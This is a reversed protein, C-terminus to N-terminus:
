SKIEQYGSELLLEVFNQKDIPVSFLICKLKKNEWAENKYEIQWINEKKHNIEFSKSAFVIPEKKKHKLCYGDYRGQECCQKRIPVKYYKGDISSDDTYGIIEFHNCQGIEKYCKDCIIDAVNNPDSIDGISYYHTVYHRNISTKCKDCIGIEVKICWENIMRRAVDFYEESIKDDIIFREPVFMINQMLEYWNNILVSAENENIKQIAFIRKQKKAVVRAGIQLWSPKSYRPKDFIPM